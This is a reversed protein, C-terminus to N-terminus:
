DSSLRVAERHVFPSLALPTPWCKLADSEETLNSWLQSFLQPSITSPKGVVFYELAVPRGKQVLPIAVQNFGSLKSAPLIGCALSLSAFEQIASYSSAEGAYRKLELNKADFLKTIQRTLGCSDPVLVFAESAIDEISVSTTGRWKACDDTKPLFVLPDQDMSPWTVDGSAQLDGDHPAIAIDILGRGIFKVLSDLDVERFIIDVAPHSTRLPAIIKSARAIGVIPSVGVQLSVADRVHHSKSLVKLDEFLSLIELITPLLQKGYPTLNMTRTTRRFLRHGFEAELQALGNSLTPQTVACRAAAAVFSGNDVLAKVYRLQQLNM